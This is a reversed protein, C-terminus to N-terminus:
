VIECACVVRGHSLEVVSGFIESLLALLAFSLLELIVRSRARTTCRRFFGDIDVVSMIARVLVDEMIVRRLFPLPTRVLIFPFPFPLSFASLWLLQARHLLIHVFQKITRCEHRKTIATM